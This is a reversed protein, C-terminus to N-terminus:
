DLWFVDAFVEGPVPMRRPNPTDYVVLLSDPQGLASYLAMGEAHDAGITFPLVFLTELEDEAQNSISDESLDLAGKLRFIEMAGELDMTPGAMIIMDDGKFNIERIGLGDLDLFHKRYPQGDNGIPKLTLIGPDKEEVEIEIMVAWGGLVPGRLGLFVRDGHVALGEIDFGNEKSPIPFSLLPGLHSDSKLAEFLINSDSTKQIGAAHMVADPQESPSFTKFLEGNIVPIRGILYRNFEPKVVELRALNKEPKKKSAKKRKTSHSGTFWLYHGSCDMGEIDIEGETNFLDLFDGIFFPQHAGFMHPGTPSLRELTLLEDSGAWLSGDPSIAIASLEGQLDESAEAFRMLVRTLLFPEQM